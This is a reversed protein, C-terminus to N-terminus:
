LEDGAGVELARDFLARYTADIKISGEERHKRIVKFPNLILVYNYTGSRGAAAKIFGLDELEKMRTKWTNVPRTGSFGSEFAMAEQDNIIVLSEDFTHCWLALYTPSIKTKALDDMVMSIFTICRPISLFGVNRKRHWLLDDSVDAFFEHRM